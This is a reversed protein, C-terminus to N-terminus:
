RAELNAFGFDRCSSMENIKEEINILRTISDRVGYFPAIYEYIRAISQPAIQSVTPFHYLVLSIDFLELTSSFTIPVSIIQIYIYINMHTYLNHYTHNLIMSNTDRNASPNKPTTRIIKARM